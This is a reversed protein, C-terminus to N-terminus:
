IVAMYRENKGQLKRRKKQTHDQQHHKTSISDPGYNHGLPQEQKGQGQKRRSEAWTLQRAIFHGVHCSM